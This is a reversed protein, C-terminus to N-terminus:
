LSGEVINSVWFIGQDTYFMWEKVEKNFNYDICKSPATFILCDGVYLCYTFQKKGEVYKIITQNEM